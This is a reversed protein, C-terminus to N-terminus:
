GGTAPAAEPELKAAPAPVIRRWFTFLAVFMVLWPLNTWPVWLNDLNNTSRGYYWPMGESIVDYFRFLFATSAATMILYWSPSLLLIFPAPWVMYQACVGPAITFFIAWAYAITAFICRGPLARRRWALALISFIVLFKLITMTMVQQGSLGTFSVKAFGTMGTSRLWYTIGWIGWYSSYGLVNHLFLSPCLLLAPSWGAVCVAGTLLAFHVGKGRHLWYFFFIPGLLVSIIKFNCSLGLSVACPLLRDESAMIAALLLFLVMMSDFNGHYGSVMFSVPSLAFLCVAWLPPQSNKRYCLMVLLVALLDAVIPPLRLFLPFLFPHEHTGQPFLTILSPFREGLFQASEYSAAFYGAVLPTHNFLSTKEYMAKLGHTALTEGYALHLLVDNSGFTTWACYLKLLLGLLASCLILICAERRNSSAAQFTM